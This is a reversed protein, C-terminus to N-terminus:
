RSHYSDTISMSVVICDCYRIEIVIRRLSTTMKSYTSPNLSRNIYNNNWPLVFVMEINELVFPENLVCSPNTRFQELRWMTKRPKAWIRKYLKHWTTSSCSIESTSHWVRFLSYGHVIICIHVYLCVFVFNMHDSTLWLKRWYPYTIAKTDSIYPPYIPVKKIQLTRSKKSSQLTAWESFM